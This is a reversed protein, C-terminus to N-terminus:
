LNRHMSYQLEAPYQCLESSEVPIGSKMFPGSITAARFPNTFEVGRLVRLMLHHDLAEQLDNGEAEESRSEVSHGGRRFSAVLIRTKGDCLCSDFLHQGVHADVASLPDDLLYVGADAYCARALAVRSRQGGTLNIGKEGIESQDGAALMELDTRLACATLVADYRHNSVM